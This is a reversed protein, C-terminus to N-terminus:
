VDDHVPRAAPHATLAVSEVRTMELLPPWRIVVRCSSCIGIGQPDDNDM